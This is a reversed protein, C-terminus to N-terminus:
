YIEEMEFCVACIYVTRAHCGASSVKRKTRRSCRDFVSEVNTADPRAKVLMFFHEDPAPPGPMSNDEFNWLSRVRVLLKVVLVASKRNETCRTVTRARLDMCITTLNWLGFALELVLVIFRRKHYQFFGNSRAINYSCNARWRGILLSMRVSKILMGNRPHIGCRFSHPFPAFQRQLGMWYLM